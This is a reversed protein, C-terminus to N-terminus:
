LAVGYLRSTAYIFDTKSEVRGIYVIERDVIESKILQVKQFLPFGGRLITTKWDIFSKGIRAPM